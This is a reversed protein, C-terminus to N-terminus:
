PPPASRIDSMAARITKAIVVNTPTAVGASAPAKRSPRSGDRTQPVADGQPADTQCRPELRSPLSSLEQVLLGLRNQRVGAAASGSPEPAPESSM